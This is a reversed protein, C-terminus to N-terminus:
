DFRSRYFRTHPVTQDDEATGNAGPGGGLGFDKARLMEAKRFEGHGDVFLLNGGKFHIYSYQYQNPVGNYNYNDQWYTYLKTTGVEMPRHVAAGWSHPFEQLYIVDASGRIVTIKRGLVAANGGYSGNSRQTVSYGPNATMFQAEALPCKFLMIQGNLNLLPILSGLFNPYQDYVSEEGFQYLSGNGDSVNVPPLRGKSEVTYMQLGIGVQRMNSLCQTRVAQLRARNLAPLLMSILLAIIGIVVLLEVLTFANSKRM